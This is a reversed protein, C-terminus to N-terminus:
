RRFNTKGSRIRLAERTLWLRLVQIAASTGYPSYPSSKDLWNRRTLAYGKGHFHVSQKGIM